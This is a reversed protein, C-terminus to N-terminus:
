PKIYTYGHQQLKTLYALANPVIDEAQVQYLDRGPDIAHETLSPKSVEFHVGDGRLEDIRRRIEPTANAYHLRKTHALAEPLLLLTVGEGQLMVKIDLNDAGVSAIHNHLNRLVVLQQDPDETNVHFVIKSREGAQATLGATCLAFLALLLSLLRRRPM